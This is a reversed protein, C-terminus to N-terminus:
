FGLVEKLKFAYDMSGKFKLKGQLFATQMKRKGTLLAAWLGPAVTIVLDPTDPLVGEKIRLENDSFLLSFNGCGKENGTLELGIQAMWGNIKDTNVRETLNRTLSHAQEALHDSTKDTKSESLLNKKFKGLTRINQRRKILRIFPSFGKRFEDIFVSRQLDSSKQVALNMTLIHKAELGSLRPKDKKLISNIFNSVAGTFGLQWDSPINSFHDWKKDNFLSIVPGSILKGTCRNIRIIGNSGTIDIWEDNAYYDSPIDVGNCYSFSCSGYRKSIGHKWMVVAPADIMGEINDIWASVESFSGMLYWATSWLHHGHDFTEMGRSEIFEKMRWAWAEKPIKWGGKGAGILNIRINQPEGIAGEEILQRAKIIPPYFIYNETVKFVLGSKDAASIMRDASAIDVTMPKQVATHKGAALAAIVMEEHMLHPTLVDVATIKPDKLLDKYDTYFREANWEKMKAKALSEDSDCVAYIEAEPCSSYGEIHLDSIRGCGIIGIKIKKM